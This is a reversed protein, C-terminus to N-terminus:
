NTNIPAKDLAFSDSLSSPYRVSAIISNFVRYRYRNRYKRPAAHTAATLRERRSAFYRHNIAVRSNFIIVAGHTIERSIDKENALNGTFESVFTLRSSRNRIKKRSPPTAAATRIARPPISQFLNEAFAPRTEVARWKAIDRRENNNAPFESSKRENLIKRFLLRLLLTRTARRLKAPAEATAYYYRTYSKLSPVFIFPFVTGSRSLLLLLARARARARLFGNYPSVPLNLGRTQTRKQVNRSEQSRGALLLPLHLLIANMIVVFSNSVRDEARLPLPKINQCPDEPARSSTIASVEPSGLSRYLRDRCQKGFTTRESM